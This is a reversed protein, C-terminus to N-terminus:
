MDTLRNIQWLSYLVQQNDLNTLNTAPVSLEVRKFHIKRFPWWFLKQLITGIFYLFPFIYCPLIHVKCFIWCVYLTTSPPITTSLNYITCFSQHNALHHWSLLLKLFLFPPFLWWPLSSWYLGSSHCWPHFGAFIYSSSDKPIVDHLCLNRCSQLFSFNTLCSPSRFAM